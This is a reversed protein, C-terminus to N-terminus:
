SATRQGRKCEIAPSVYRENRAAARLSDPLEEFACDKLVYGIAGAELASAVMRWDRHTSLAIIRVGPSAGRIRRILGISGNTSPDIDVVLADIGALADRGPTQEGDLPGAVIREGSAGLLRCLESELPKYPSWVAIRLTAEGPSETDSASGDM